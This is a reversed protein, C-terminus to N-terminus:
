DIPQKGARKNLLRRRRRLLMLQLSATWCNLQEKDFAVDVPGDVQAELRSHVRLVSPYLGYARFVTPCRTRYPETRLPGSLSLSVALPVFNRSTQRWVWALRAMSKAAWQRHPCSRFIHWSLCASTTGLYWCALAGIMLSRRCGARCSLALAPQANRCLWSALPFSGYEMSRAEQVGAGHGM